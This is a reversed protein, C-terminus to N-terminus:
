SSEDVPPPPPQVQNVRIPVRRREEGNVKGILSHDGARNFRLGHLGILTNHTPYLGSREQKLEFETQSAFLENGDQDWLLLELDFSNGVESAEGTLSVVLNMPTPMVGPITALNIEDFIGLVSLKGDRSIIAYDALLAFKVQMPCENDRKIHGATM